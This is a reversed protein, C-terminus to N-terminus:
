KRISSPPLLIEAAWGAGETGLPNKADRRGMQRVEQGEKFGHHQSSLRKLVSVKLLLVLDVYFLHVHHPEGELPARLANRACSWTMWGQVTIGLALSKIYYVEFANPVRAFAHSGTRVLEFM